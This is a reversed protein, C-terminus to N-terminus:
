DIDEKDSDDCRHLSAGGTNLVGLRFEEGHCWGAHKKRFPDRVIEDDM